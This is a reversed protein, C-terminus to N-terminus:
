VYCKNSQYVHAHTPVVFLLMSALCPFSWASFIDDHVRSAYKLLWDEGHLVHMWGTCPLLSWTIKTICFSHFHCQWAWWFLVKNASWAMACQQEGVTDGWADLLSSSPSLLSGCSYYPVIICWCLTWLLYTHSHLYLFNKCYTTVIDLIKRFIWLILQYFIMSWTDINMYTNENHKIFTALPASVIQEYLCLM